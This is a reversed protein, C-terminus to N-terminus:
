ENYKTNSNDVVKAKLQAFQSETTAARVLDLIEPTVMGDQCCNTFVRALAALAKTTSSSASPLESTQCIAQIVEHYTTSDITIDLNQMEKWLRIAVGSGMEKARQQFETTDKSVDVLCSQLVLHFSEVNPNSVSGLSGKNNGLEKDNDQCQQNNWELCSLLFSYSHFARDTDTSRSWCKLVCNWNEISPFLPVDMENTTDNAVVIDEEKKDNSEDCQPRAQSQQMQMQMASARVIMSWVVDEAQQAIHIAGSEKGYSLLVMNYIARTPTPVAFKTFSLHQPFDSYVGQYSANYSPTSDVVGAEKSNEEVNNTEERLHASSEKNSQLINRLALPSSCQEMRQLIAGARQALGAFVIDPQQAEDMNTPPNEPTMTLLRGIARHCRETRPRDTERWIGTRYLDDLMRCLFRTQADMRRVKGRAKALVEAEAEQMTSGNVNDQENNNGQEQKKEFLSSADEEEKKKGGNSYEEISDVEVGGRYHHSMICLSELNMGHRRREWTGDLASPLITKQYDDRRSKNNGVIAEEEGVEQFSYYPSWPNDYDSSRFWERWNTKNSSSSSPVRTPDDNNIISSDAKNNNRPLISISSSTEKQPHTNNTSFFYHAHPTLASTFSIHRRRLLLHRHLPLAASHM